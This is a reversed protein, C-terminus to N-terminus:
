RGYTGCAGGTENKVMQDSIINPSLHEDSDM